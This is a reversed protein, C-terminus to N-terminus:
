PSAILDLGAIEDTVNYYRPIFTYGKATASLVYGASSPVDNFRYYGFSNSRATWVAGESNTLSVVANRIASGEPSLIRGTISAPAATPALFCAGVMPGSVNLTYASGIGGGVNIESVVLTFQQGATANFGVTVLGASTVGWDALYNTQIAAPIYGGSGYVALYM